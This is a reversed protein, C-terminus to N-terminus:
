ANVLRKNAESIARRVLVTLIEARYWATAWSDSEPDADRRAEKAAAEIASSFDGRAARLAQEANRSRLPRPAVGGLAVRIQRDERDARRLLVAVSINGACARSARCFTSVRYRRPLM